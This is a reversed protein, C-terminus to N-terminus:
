ISDARAALQCFSNQYAGDGEGVLAFQMGAELLLPLADLLVDPMKQHVLRSMFALLPRDSHALGDACRDFVSATCLARCEVIDVFPNPQIRPKDELFAPSLASGRTKRRLVERFLPHNRGVGGPSPVSRKV